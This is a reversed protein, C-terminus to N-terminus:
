LFSTKVLGEASQLTNVGNYNLGGAASLDIHGTFSGHQLCAEKCRLIIHIKHMEALVKTTAV